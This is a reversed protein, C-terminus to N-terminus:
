QNHWWARHVVEKSLEHRPVEFLRLTLEETQRGCVLPCRGYLLTDVLIKREKMTLNLYDGPHRLFSFIGHPGLGERRDLNFRVTALIALIVDMIGPGATAWFDKFNSIGGIDANKYCFDKETDALKAMYVEGFSTLLTGGATVLSGTFFVGTSWLDLKEGGLIKKRNLWSATFTAMRGLFNLIAGGLASGPNPLGCLPSDWFETLFLCVTYFVAGLLVVAAPSRDVALALRSIPNWPLTLNIHRSKVNSAEQFFGKLAPM